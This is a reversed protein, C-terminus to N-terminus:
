QYRWGPQYKNKLMGRGNGQAWGLGFGDVSVLVNGKPSEERQLTEGKLYRIVQGDEGGLSLVHPYEEPKLALALQPSPQVKHKWRCVPLGSYLVRLGGHDPELFSHWSLTDREYALVGPPLFIQELFRRVDEGADGLRKELKRDGSLLEVGPVRGKGDGGKGEASSKHSSGDKRLLAAFHGEGPARHPFIRVCDEMSAVPEELLDTRGPSFGERREVPCLHMDGHTGLLWDVVGEDEELSFTCTSYVMMGGPRLMRYAQELIERQLPAYRDPGKELWDKVMRPERRFMGEGSCPADILIKDFGEPFAEALREPMEATVMVNAIGALQLNKTLAVARSASVDNAVLFGTGGLRSGLETAKGGPAACLDLVLDGPEVPLISAPIMASPEQIYYLGAFYYPHKAPSLAEGSYYFGKECWPVGEGSFLAHARGGEMAELSGTGGAGEHGMGCILERWKELSVKWTNVRYAAHPVDSFSEVYEGYEEGLLSKMRECYQKPLDAM